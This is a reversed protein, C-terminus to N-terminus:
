SNKVTKTKIAAEVELKDEKLFCFLLLIACMCFANWVGRRGWWTRFTNLFLMSTMGLWFRWIGLTKHICLICCLLVSSSLNQGVGVLGLYSTAHCSPVQLSHKAEAAKCHICDIGRLMKVCSIHFHQQTCYWHQFFFWCERYQKAQLPMSVTGVKWQYVWWYPLAVLVRKIAAMIICAKGLVWRCSNGQSYIPPRFLFSAAYLLTM